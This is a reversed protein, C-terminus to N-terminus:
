VIKPVRFFGNEAEPANEMARKQELSLSVVDERMVNHVPIVHATPTVGDTDLQELIAAYELISNLQETYMEIEPETLELRALLAVHEVEPRSIKVLKVM